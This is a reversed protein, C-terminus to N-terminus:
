EHGLPAQRSQIDPHVIYPAPIPCHISTGQLAFCLLCILVHRRSAYYTIRLRGRRDLGLIPKCSINRM